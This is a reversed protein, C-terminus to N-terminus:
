KDIKKYFIMIFKAFRFLIQNAKNMAFSKGLAKGGITLASIISMIILTIYFPSINHNTALSIAISAGASGSLIGCVDGIVDNCFSSVKSAKKILRLCARSGKVRKTAMSNFTKADAVTVAVGIMDFNIGILIFALVVIFSFYIGLKPIIIETMLSFIFSIFFAFIFIKIIWSWDGKKHLHNKDVKKAYKNKFSKTKM